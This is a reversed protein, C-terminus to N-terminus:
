VILPRTIWFCILPIDLRPCLMTTCFYQSGRHSRAKTTLFRYEIQLAGQSITALWLPRFRTMPITHVTKRVLFDDRNGSTRRSATARKASHACRSIVRRRTCCTRGFKSPRQLSIHQILGISRQIARMFYMSKLLSCKFLKSKHPM